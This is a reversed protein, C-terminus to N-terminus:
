KGQLLDDDLEALMAEVDEADDRAVHIIAGLSARGVQSGFNGVPLLGLAEEGQVVYPIGASDLLSKVIPLVVVSTTRFVAVLDAGPEPDAEDAPGESVLRVGCDACEEFGPRYEAGCSPCHM